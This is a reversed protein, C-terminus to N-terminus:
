GRNGKAYREYRALALEGVRSAIERPSPSNLYESIAEAIFERPSELAYESLGYQIQAPSLRDYLSHFESSEAFDLLNDLAHGLEHYIVSDLDACGKPHFGIEENRKLEALASTYASGEFEENDLLLAAFIGNATAYSALMAGRGEGTLDWYDACLRGFPARYEPDLIRHIALKKANEEDGLNRLVKELTTVSGVYNVVGRLLPFRYFIKTLCRLAKKAPVLHIDSFDAYDCLYYKKALEALKSPVFTREIEMHLNHESTRKLYPRFFRGQLVAVQDSTFGLTLPKGGINIDIYERESM